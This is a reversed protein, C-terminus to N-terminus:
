PRMADLGDVDRMSVCVSALTREECLAVVPRSPADRREDLDRTARSGTM